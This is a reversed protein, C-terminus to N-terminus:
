KKSVSITELENNQCKTPVYDNYEPAVHCTWEIIEGVNVGQLQLALPGKAHKPQLLGIGAHNATKMKAIVHIVHKVPQTNLTQVTVQQVVHTDLNYVSNNLPANSLVNDILKVKYSDAVAILEVVHAKVIYRDYAPIAVAALIGVIAVVVLLELLTFGHVKEM